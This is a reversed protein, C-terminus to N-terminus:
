EVSSNRIQSFKRKQGTVTMCVMTRGSDIDKVTRENYRECLRHLLQRTLHGHHWMVTLHSLFEYYLGQEQIMTASQDVFDMLKSAIDCVLTEHDGLFGNWLKMFLKEMPTVDTFDDILEDEMDRRWDSDLMRGETGHLWQGLTIVCGTEPHYYSRKPFEVNKPACHTILDIGKMTGRLSPRQAYRCCTEVFLLESELAGPREEPELHGSRPKALIHLRQDPTTRHDFWYEHAHLTNWHIWAHQLAQCEFGCFPCAFDDVM